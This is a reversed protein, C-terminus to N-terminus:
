YWNPYHSYWFSLARSPSGYRDKIYQLGWRAQNPIDSLSAGLKSCPLAQFLGCAGSANKADPRWGSENNVLTYLADWESGSDWGYDKAEYNVWQEPTVPIESATGVPEVVVNGITSVSNHVKPRPLGDATKYSGVPLFTLGLFLLCVIITTKLM